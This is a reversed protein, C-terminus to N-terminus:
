RFTKITIVSICTIYILVFVVNFVIVNTGSKFEKIDESTYGQEGVAAIDEYTYDLTYESTTSLIENGNLKFTINTITIEETGCQEKLDDELFLYSSLIQNNEKTANDTIVNGNCTLEISESSKEAYLDSDLGYVIINYGILSEELTGSTQVYIALGLDNEYVENEIEFYYDSFGVIPKLDDESLRELINSKYNNYQLYATISFSFMFGFILVITFIIIKKM